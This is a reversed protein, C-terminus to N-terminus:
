FTQLGGADVAPAKIRLTGTRWSVFPFGIRQLICAGLERGWPSGRHAGHIPHELVDFADLLSPVAEPGDARGVVVMVWAEVDLLAAVATREHDAAGPALLRVNHVGEFRAPELRPVQERFLLSGSGAGFGRPACRLAPLPEDFSYAM